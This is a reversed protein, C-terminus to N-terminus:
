LKSLPIHKGKLIQKLSTKISKMTEQDSLIECTEKLAKNEKKLYEMKDKM